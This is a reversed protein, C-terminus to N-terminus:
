LSKSAVHGKKQNDIALSDNINPQQPAFNNVHKGMLNGKGPKSSAYVQLANASTKSGSKTVIPIPGQNQFVLGANSEGRRHM